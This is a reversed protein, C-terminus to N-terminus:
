VFDLRPAAARSRAENGGTTDNGEADCQGVQCGTTRIDWSSEEAVDGHTIM